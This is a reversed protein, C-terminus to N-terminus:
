VLVNEITRVLRFDYLACCNLSVAIPNTSGHFGNSESSLIVLCIKHQCMTHAGVREVQQQLTGACYESARALNGANKHVQAFFLLTKTYSDELLQHVDVTDDEEMGLLSESCATMSADRQIDTHLQEADSLSALAEHYKGADNLLMSMSTFAMLLFLVDTNKMDDRMLHQMGQKLADISEEGLDTDALALGRRVLLRGLMTHFSIDQGNLCVKLELGQDKFAKCDEVLRQQLDAAAYKHEYPATSSSTRAMLMRYDMAGSVLQKTCFAIWEDQSGTMIDAAM